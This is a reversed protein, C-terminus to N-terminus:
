TVQPTTGIDADGSDSEKSEQVYLANRKYVHAVQPRDFVMTIRYRATPWHKRKPDYHLIVEGHELYSVLIREEEDSLADPDIVVRMVDKPVHTGIASGSPRNQQWSSELATEDQIHSRRTESEDPLLIALVGSPLIWPDENPRSIAVTNGADRLVPSDRVKKEVSELTDAIKRLPTVGRTQVGAYKAPDIRWRRTPWRLRRKWGYTTYYEQGDSKGSLTDICYEIGSPLEEFEMARFDTGNSTIGVNRLSGGGVNRVMVDITTFGAERPRWFIVLRGRFQMRAFWASTLAAGASFLAITVSIIATTAASSNLIDM